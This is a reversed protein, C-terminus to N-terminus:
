KNISKSFQNPKSVYYRILIEIFLFRNSHDKGRSRLCSLTIIDKLEELQIKFKLSRWIGNPGSALFMLFLSLCTRNFMMILQIVWTSYWFIVSNVLLLIIVRLKNWCTFGPLLFAWLYKITCWWFTRYYIKLTDSLYNSRNQVNINGPSRM